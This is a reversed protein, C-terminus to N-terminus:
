NKVKGIAYFTPVFLIRQHKERASLDLTKLESFNVDSMNNTYLDSRIVEWELAFDNKNIQQGWQGGMVGVEINELGALSFLSLLERGISPNAGQKRLSEIQWQGIQSLELPFDIRGGYDPEAIAIVYGGERTIRAMERIVQLPKTVWLLLFHCLSIDFTGADFPQNHADGNTNISRPVYQKGMTLSNHSIDLGYVSATTVRCLEALLVGTGCGVDLIKKANQIGVRDYLYKRLNETWHAQQQYRLHWYDLSLAM